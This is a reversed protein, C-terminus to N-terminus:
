GSPLVGRPLVGMGGSRVLTGKSILSNNWFNVGTTFFTSALTMWSLGNRRNRKAAEHEDLIPNNRAFIKKFFSM